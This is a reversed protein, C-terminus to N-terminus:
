GGFQIKPGVDIPEFHKPHFPKKRGTCYTGQLQFMLGHIKDEGVLKHVACALANRSEKPLADNDVDAKSIRDTRLQGLLHFDCGSPDSKRDLATSRVNTDFSGGEGGTSLRFKVPTPPHIQDPHGIQLFGFQSSLGFDAVDSNGHNGVIITPM